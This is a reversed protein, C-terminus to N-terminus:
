LPCSSKTARTNNEPLIIVTEQLLWFRLHNTTGNFYGQVRNLVHHANLTTLVYIRTHSAPVAQLAHSHTIGLRQQRHNLAIVAALRRVSLAM